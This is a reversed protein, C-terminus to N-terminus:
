ARRPGLLYGLPPAASSKRSRPKPGAKKSAVTKALVTAAASDSTALCGGIIGAVHTGHGFADVLPNDGKVGLFSMHAIPLKVALNQFREFHPHDGQIGSDMVAWVIDRGRANFAVRAADAKITMVSRTLCASVEFDPWIRYIRRANQSTEAFNVATITVKYTGAPVNAINIYGQGDATVTRRYGTTTGVSEVTVSANPVRANNADTVTGEISGTTGQGFAMAAFCLM